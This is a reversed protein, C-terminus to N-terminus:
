SAFYILKALLPYAPWQLFVTPLLFHKHKQVLRQFPVTSRPCKQRCPIWIRPLDEMGIKAVTALYKKVWFNKKIGENEGIGSCAQDIM